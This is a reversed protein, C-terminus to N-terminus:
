GCPHTLLAESACHSADKWDPRSAATEPISGFEIKGSSVAILAGGM